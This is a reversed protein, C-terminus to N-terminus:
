NINRRNWNRAVPNRGRKTQYVAFYETIHLTTTNNYSHKDLQAPVMMLEDRQKRKSIVSSEAANVILRNVLGYSEM